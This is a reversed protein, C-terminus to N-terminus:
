RGSLHPCLGALKLMALNIFAGVHHFGHAIRTLLRLQTNTAEIRANTLGHQLTADIRERCSRISRALKVFPTLRSRQAWALWTDLRRGGAAPSRAQFVGRLGEKLLYARFLPANTKEVWALTRKQKANLNEPNKWLAWRAGKLHAAADKQGGRRLGNWVGRRVEDLAGSAWQVVHFTDLCRVVHPAKERVAEDIWAAGDASVLELAAAVEPM